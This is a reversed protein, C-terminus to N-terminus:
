FAHHTARGTKIQFAEAMRSARRFEKGLSVARLSRMYDMIGKGLTVMQENPLECAIGRVVRDEVLLSALLMRIAYLSACAVSGSEHDIINRLMVARLHSSMSVHVGGDKETCGCSDRFFTVLEANAPTVPIILKQANSVAKFLVALEDSIGTSYACSIVNQVPSEAETSTDDM